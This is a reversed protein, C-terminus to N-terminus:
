TPEETTAAADRKAGSAAFHICRTASTEDSGYMPIPARRCAAIEEPCRGAFLCHDPIKTQSPIEGHLKMPVTRASPDPLLRASLLAKTYPHKPAALLSRTEGIEMIQGRYMVAVRDAITEVSGIDHSIYLMSIGRERKLKGLLDLIQARVSVDLSSTPEDLVLMEPDLILARAIGVRQQQGGSLAKPLRDHLHDALGVLRLMKQAQADREQRSLDRRNIDLPERVISLIRHRPNLSEYPEQFVAQVRQRSGGGASAFNTTGSDADIIGLLIRGLTSKGSGSEGIIALCEGKRVALSVDNVAHVRVGRGVDFAKYLRDATLLDM